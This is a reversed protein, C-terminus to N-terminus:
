FPLDDDSNESETEPTTSMASLPDKTPQEKDVPIEPKVLIDRGTIVIQTETVDMPEVYIGNKSVRVFGKKDYTTKLRLPKKEAIKGDLLSKVWNIMDIFTNFEAQPIEDYFCKVIQLIRGFQQNDRQQLEADTKIWMTKENKWEDYTATKGDKDEYIIELFNKGTPSTNVNVEKLTVNENIGAPMFSSNGTSMVATQTSYM